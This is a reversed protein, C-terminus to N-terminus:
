KIRVSFATFLWSIPKIVRIITEKNQDNADLMGNVHSIWITADSLCICLSVPKLPRLSAAEGPCAMCRKGLWRIAFYLNFTIPTIRRLYIIGSGFFINWDTKNLFRKVQFNVNGPLPGLFPCSRNGDAWLFFIPRNNKKLILGHLRSNNSFPYNRFFSRFCHCATCYYCYFLYYPYDHRNLYLNFKFLM